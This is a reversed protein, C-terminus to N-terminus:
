DELEDIQPPSTSQDESDEDIKRNGETDAPTQTWAKLGDAKGESKSADAFEDLIASKAVEKRIDELGSQRALDEPLTKLSRSMRQFGQWTESRRINRIFKGVSTGAKVMEDPGLVILAIIVILLVEFPGIGLIEM